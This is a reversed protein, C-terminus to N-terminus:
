VVTFEALMGRFLHASTPDGERTRLPCLVFYNGPTLDVLLGGTGGPTALASGPVLDAIQQIQDLSMDVLQKLDVQQGPNLRALLAVHSEGRKSHNMLSFSTPGAALREPVGEFEYDMAMLEVRQFGCNAHAWAEYWAIARTSQPDDAPLPEGRSAAEVVPRLALMPNTLDTPGAALVADLRPLVAQGYARTASPDAAPGVDPQAVADIALLGDCVAWSASAPSPAPPNAAVDVVSEQSPAGGTPGSRPGAGAGCATLVSVMLAAAFAAAWAPGVKRGNM